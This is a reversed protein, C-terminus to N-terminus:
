AFAMNRTYAPDIHLTPEAVEAPGAVGDAFALTSTDATLTDDRSLLPSTVGLNAEEDVTPQIQELRELLQERADMDTESGLSEIISFGEEIEGARELLREREESGLNPDEFRETMATLEATMAEAKERLMQQEQEVATTLGEIANEYIQEVAREAEQDTTYLDYARYGTLGVEAATVAQNLRGGMAIPNMVRATVAAARTAAAGGGIVAGGVGATAVTVAVFAGVEGVAQAGSMLAREYDNRAETWTVAEAAHDAMNSSIYEFDDEVFQNALLIAGNGVVNVALDGVSAVGSALGRVLGQTAVEATRAVASVADGVTEVASSVSDSVWNAARSLWGM